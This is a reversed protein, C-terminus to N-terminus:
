YALFDLRRGCPLHDPTLPPQALKNYVIHTPLRDNFIAQVKSLLTLMEEYSARFNTLLKHLSHKVTKAVREFFSGQSPCTAPKHRMILM